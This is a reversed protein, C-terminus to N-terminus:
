GRGWSTTPFRSISATISSGRTHRTLASPRRCCRPSTLSYPRRPCIGARTVDRGPLNKVPFSAAVSRYRLKPLLEASDKIGLADDGVATRTRSRRTEGVHQDPEPVGVDRDVVSPQHLPTSVAGERELEALLVFPSQINTRVM